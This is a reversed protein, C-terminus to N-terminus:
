YQMQVTPHKFTVPRGPDVFDVMEHKKLDYVYFTFQALFTGGLIVLWRGDPTVALACASKGTPHPVYAYPSISDCVRNQRVDYVRCTGTSPPDGLSAGPHSYLVFRDDPTVVLEGAGPELIETFIVSDREVDYVAFAWTWLGHLRLYLFLKDEYRSPVVQAVGANPIALRTVSPPTHRLNVKYVVGDGIEWDAACYFTRSDQSFCGPQVDVSDAFFVSYDCTRLIHLTRGQIAVLQNDRSVASWINPKYPLEAILEHTAADIVVVNEDQSLYLRTGDASVTVFYTSWPITATDVRRSVPYYTFLQSGYGDGIYVPYDKPPASRSRTPEDDCSGFLLCIVGSLSLVGATLWGKAIRM